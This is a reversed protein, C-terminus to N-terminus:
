NLIGCCRNVINWARRTLFWIEVIESPTFDEQTISHREKWIDTKWDQNM